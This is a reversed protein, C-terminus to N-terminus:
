DQMLYIIERFLFCFGPNHLAINLSKDEDTNRFFTKITGGEVYSFNDYWSTTEFTNEM